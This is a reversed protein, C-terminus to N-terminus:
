PGGTVPVTLMHIGWTNGLTARVPGAAVFGTEGAVLAVHSNAPVSVQFRFGMSHPLLAMSFGYSLVKSIVRITVRIATKVPRSWDLSSSVSYGAASFETSRDVSNGELKGVPKVSGVRDPMRTVIPGDFFSGAYAAGRTQVASANLGSMKRRLCLFLVGPLASVQEGSNRRTHM